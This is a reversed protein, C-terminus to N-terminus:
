KNFEDVKEKNKAFLLDSRICSIRLIALWELDYEISSSDDIKSDFEIIELFKRRKVVKDLALFRTSSGDTHCIDATHKVHLHSSFWFRPKLNMLIADLM